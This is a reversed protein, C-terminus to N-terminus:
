SSENLCFINQGQKRKRVIYPLHRHNFEYGFNELKNKRYEFRKHWTTQEGPIYLKESTSNTYVDPIKENELFVASARGALTPNNDHWYVNSLQLTKIDTNDTAAYLNFNLPWAHHVFFKTSFFDRANEENTKM